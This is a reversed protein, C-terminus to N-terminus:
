VPRMPPTYYLWKTAIWKEGKRVPKGGHCTREDQILKQPFTVYSHNTSNFHPFNKYNYWLVARGKKPIVSIGIEPFQTEGGDEVDNLYMLITAVRKLNKSSDLHPNFFGGKKYYAVQVGGGHNKPIKTLKEIRKEIGILTQQKSNHFFCVLSDRQTKDKGDHTGGTDYVTGTNLTTHKAMRILSACERSSLFDDVIYLGPSSTITRIKSAM